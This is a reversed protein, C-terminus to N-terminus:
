EKAAIKLIEEPETTTQAFDGRLYKLAIIEQNIEEPTRVGLRRIVALPPCWGQMAHQLLFFSVIDPLLFWHPKHKVFGTISGALILTAANAELIRETNWERNLEDLRRSIEAHSANKYKRIYDITKEQIKKNIKKGTHREVRKTTPPVAEKIMM